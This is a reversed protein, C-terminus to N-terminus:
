KFFSSLASATNKNGNKIKSATNAQYGWCIQSESATRQINRLNAHHKSILCIPLVPKFVSALFSDEACSHGGSAQQLRDRQSSCSSAIVALYVINPNMLFIFIFFLTSLYVKYTHSVSIHSISCGM